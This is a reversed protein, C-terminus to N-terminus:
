YIWQIRMQISNTVGVLGERNLNSIGYIIGTKWYQTAWWNLGIDFRTNIGGSIDGSNLNVRGARAVVELAGYEGDPMIRRAYAARKDYPRQEGSIVYSTTLYYGKFQEFGEPTDVWNHVYELLFSFNQLSWLQELSLNFQNDAIMDGTDVYNSSVNSENKGRLRIVGDQAEVYRFGLGMHIFQKGEDQWKVLGTLRGTFSNASSSFDYSNSVWENFWGASLTMRDKLFYHKYIIGNNRSKFFPSLLREFHPLNAADGVMEYVFTEKVKGIWIEDNDTFPIILKIDTFGFPETGEARDNGLYEASILYTWPRKFNIKGRLMMRASRIDFRSDQEGVQQKSDDDQINLNYDLIPAFGLKFTVWHTEKRAWRMRKTTVDPVFYTKNSDPLVQTQSDEVISTFQACTHQFSFAFVMLIALKSLSLSKM